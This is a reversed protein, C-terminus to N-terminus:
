GTIDTFSSFNCLDKQYAGCLTIDMGILSWANPLQFTLNCIFSIETRTIPDCVGDDSSVGVFIDGDESPAILNVM